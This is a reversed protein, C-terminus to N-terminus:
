SEDGKLVAIWRDLHNRMNTLSYATAEKHRPKWGDVIRDLGYDNIAMVMGLVRQITKDFKEAGAEIEDDPSTLEFTQPSPTPEIFLTRQGPLAKRPAETIDVITAGFFQKLGVNVPHEAATQATELEDEDEPELYQGYDPEAEKIATVAVAVQRATPKGNPASEVAAKWAIPQKEAPLTALPRAQSELSPKDVITSLNGVVKAAEILQYARPRSLEWRESCYNEFTGHSSRYLRDDRIKLLASGVEVFTQFGTEIVSECRQLEDLEIPLLDNM